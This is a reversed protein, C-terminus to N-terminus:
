QLTYLAVADTALSVDVIRQTYKCLHKAEGYELLLEGDKPWSDPLTVKIDVKQDSSLNVLCLLHLESRFTWALVHDVAKPGVLWHTHQETLSPHWKEAVVRLENLSEWLPWNKGWQYAGKTAKPGRDIQFVYLKTYHENPAATPHQDRQEFGLGMYSPMEPLFLGMFLRIVNGQLYYSDFRPDDKDATMITFCPAINCSQLIHWYQAFREMFLVSDPACSQLDGLTTDAHSAELHEVEDGYAMHGAPALFSEAFYGFYPVNKKIYNAVAMLPDYYIDTQKPVGESRMQVHSMDGRMFDFNFEKQVAAYHTCFYEWVATRPRSFDIAWNKNNDLREYLKYRTLPGFVRSMPTPETIRYDRWVRGAEDITLADESPDVELGRYPPAMTAPVPEFGQNYLWDVLLVRRHQRRQHDSPAGFLLQCRKAETWTNFLTVTDGPMELGNISPGNKKLWNFVADQIQTHLESEHITIQLDKRQLWEFHQPYALVMESYRDTHPIVDMGVKKGLAHLLNIVAQLQRKVTNLQPVLHALETSYFAPNIQWSAMGYLSAVVGPEWIPLLHISDQAVPLTLAYKVVNWFSHITRVNVGVMNSTRLWNSNQKDTLPSDVIQGPSLAKQMISVGLRQALLGLVQQGPLQVAQSPPLGVVFSSQGAAYAAIAATPAASPM